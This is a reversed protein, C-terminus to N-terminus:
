SYLERVDVSNLDDEKEDL